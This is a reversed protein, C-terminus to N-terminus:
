QQNLVQELYEKISELKHVGDLADTGSVALKIASVSDVERPVREIRMKVVPPFVQIQQPVRREDFIVTQPHIVEVSMAEGIVGIVIIEGHSDSINYDRGGIRLKIEGKLDPITYGITQGGYVKLPERTRASIVVGRESGPAAEYLPYDIERPIGSTALTIARELAPQLQNIKIEARTLQDRLEKKETENKRSNLESLHQGYFEKVGGLAFATIIIAISFWGRPTIRKRIVEEGKHWTDGGIAALSGIAAAMLLLINILLM